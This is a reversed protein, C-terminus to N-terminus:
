VRLKMDIAKPARRMPDPDSEVRDAFEEQGELHALAGQLPCLAQDM